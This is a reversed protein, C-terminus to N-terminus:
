RSMARQWSQTMLDLATPVDTMIGDLGLAPIIDKAQHIIQGSLFIEAAPNSVRLAVILRALAVASHAGAASLGIIRCNSQGINAVLDDHDKGMILHIDWGEKGFLDAAMQAGLTHTEGPITAFVASRTAVQTTPVFLYSLSRMIAYIRSTGIAVEYFSADDTEWWEGLIRAAEALYCLYIANLSAGDEHVSEIFRHGEQGDDSILAYCLREVKARSPLDLSQSNLLPQSKVRNLVEAVIHSLDREPLRAKLTSVETRTKDYLGLVDTIRMEQLGSM